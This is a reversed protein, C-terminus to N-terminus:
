QGIVSVDTNVHNRPRRGLGFASAATLSSMCAGPLLVRCWSFAGTRLQLHRSVCTSRDLWRQQLTTTSRPDQPSIDQDLNQGWWWSGMVPKVNCSTECSSLKVHSIWVGLQVDYQSVRLFRVTQRQHWRRWNRNLSGWLMRREAWSSSCNQDQMYAFLHPVNKHYLLWYYLSM